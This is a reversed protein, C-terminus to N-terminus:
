MSYPLSKYSRFKIARGSLSFCHANRPTGPPAPTPCPDPQVMPDSVWFKGSHHSKQKLSSAGRASEEAQRVGFACEAGMVVVQGM